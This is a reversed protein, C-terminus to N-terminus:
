DRQASPPTDTVYVGKGQHGRVWGAVKLALIASDVTPDSVKYQEGLQRRTPLKDGPRLRGDKIQAILDGFVRQWSPVFPEM